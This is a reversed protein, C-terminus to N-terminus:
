SYSTLVMAPHEFFAVGRVRGAWAFTDGVRGSDSLVAEEGM